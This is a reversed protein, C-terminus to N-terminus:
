KRFVSAQMPLGNSLYSHFYELNNFEESGPEFPKARVQANCGRYRVQLTVLNDGGRFVPWHTAHGLAPSLYETRLLNGSQQVHCTACSFNLQGRREFFHRKGIEYAQLAKDGEVKIQMKMGDSLTRAYATLTGMTKADNYSYEDEGNAKRCSNIAMEFTVVKGLKEDFYPYLGAINKGGSPFCSAYTKGNKFPTEWMKKGTEVVTIFPPFEMISNYQALADPSFIFAGNVYDEFKANPFKNKFYDLMQKRDQEPTAHAVVAGLTLSAGLIAALLKRM